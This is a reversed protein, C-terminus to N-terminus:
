AQAYVSAIFSKGGSALPPYPLHPSPAFCMRPCLHVFGRLKPLRVSHLLLLRKDIPHISNMTIEWAERVLYPFSLADLRMANM